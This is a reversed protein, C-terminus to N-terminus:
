FGDALIIKHTQILFRFTKSILHIPNPDTIQFNPSPSKKTAKSSHFWDAPDQRLDESDFTSCFTVPIAKSDSVLFQKTVSKAVTAPETWDV